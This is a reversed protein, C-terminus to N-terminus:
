KVVEVKAAQVLYRGPAPQSLRGVIRVSQATEPLAGSFAIPVEYSSCNLERCANYETLDIVTFLRRQPAVDAVVGRLTIQRGNFAAPDKALREVGIEDSVTPTAASKATSRGGGCGAAAVVGLLALAVLSVLHSAKM